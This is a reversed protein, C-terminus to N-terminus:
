TVPPMPPVHPMDYAGVEGEMGRLANAAASASGGDEWHLPPELNGHQGSSEVVAEGRRSLRDCRPVDTPVHGAGKSDAKANAKSAEAESMGEGLGGAMAVNYKVAEVVGSADPVGM